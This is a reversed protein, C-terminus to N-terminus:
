QSAEARVILKVHCSHHLTSKRDSGDRQVVYRTGSPTGIEKAVLTYRERTRLLVFRQGPRVQRLPMTM